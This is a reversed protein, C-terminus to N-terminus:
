GSEPWRRSRLHEVVDLPEGTLFADLQSSSHRKPYCPEIAGSSLYKAIINRSLHTRRPIEWISLKEHVHRPQQNGSM